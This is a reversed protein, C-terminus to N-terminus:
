LLVLKAHKNKNGNRPFYKWDMSLYLIQCHYESTMQVFRWRPDRLLNIITTFTSGACELSVPRVPRSTCVMSTQINAVRTGGPVKPIWRVIGIGITVTTIAIKPPFHRAVIIIWRIVLPVQSFFYLQNDIRRDTISYTMGYHLGHLSCVASWASQLGCVM